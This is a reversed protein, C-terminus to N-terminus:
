IIISIDYQESNYTPGWHAHALPDCKPLVPNVRHNDPLNISKRRMFSHSKALTKVRSMGLFLLRAPFCDVVPLM